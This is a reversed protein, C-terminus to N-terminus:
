MNGNNHQPVNRRNKTEEHSTDHPINFKTLPKKRCGNLHDNSKQGKKRNIHKVNISKYINVWGQM